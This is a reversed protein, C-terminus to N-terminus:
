PDAIQVATGDIRVEGGDPIVLGILVKMLTSKGAGNEGLVGHIRRRHLALNVHDCAVVRGFRKTINILEVAPPPGLGGGADTNPTQTM